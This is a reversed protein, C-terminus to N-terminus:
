LIVGNKIEPITVVFTSGEGFESEAHLAWGHRECVTYCIALGIGTGDYQKRDHLRTFPEFIKFINEEKIGIGNDAIRIELAGSPTSRSSIKINPARGPPCYKLANSVLNRLLQNALTPDADIIPM